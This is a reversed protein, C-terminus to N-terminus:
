SKALTTSILELLPGPDDALYMHGGAMGTCSFESATVERWGNVEERSVFEDAEAFVASIPVPLPEAARPRYTEDMEFDARMAPLLLERMEPIDFAPHWYGTTRRVHALFEDDTMGAVDSVRGASPPRAASVFLHRVDVRGDDLLRRTVEYALAAGLFCHGFLAVPGNGATEIATKVVDDAAAHLDRYPKEDVRRERGPLQVPAAVVERLGLKNWPHFFSAGGGAFPLCILPLM